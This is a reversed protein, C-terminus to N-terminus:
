FRLKRYEKSGSIVRTRMNGENKSKHAGTGSFYIVNNGQKGSDM